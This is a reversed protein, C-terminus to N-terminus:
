CREDSLVVRARPRFHEELLLQRCRYRQVKGSPTKPLAGSEVFVCEHLTIGAKRAAVRAARAALGDYDDVGLKTEALLVLRSRGRLEVDLVVVCGKRLPEMGAVTWEVERAYVNRGTVSILDDDRGVVYLDGDRQFGLDGTRLWGDVFHSRTRVPDAFYGSALSPSSVQIGAVRKRDGARIRVGECPPGASVLFAARPDGTETEVVDGGALRLADVALTKPEARPPCATVALTAEALGYAPIFTNPRLGYPEFVEIARRLTDHEVREAGVVCGRLALEGPLKRRGQARVALHLATSTGATLTSGFSAMEAFWTGPALMFREPTSLTLDWDSAWPRLLCGFIGMDHSLPLWSYVREVGPRGATLSGIIELQETIARTTLVCGKPVDTSGSSYQIFAPEDLGPPAPDIRRSGYLSEWSRVPVRQSLAPPIFPLLREETLILPSGLMALIADLRLAYEEASGGVSPLPLSAPVGGALWTALLGSVAHPSNTLLVAVRTGDHVGSARLSGTMEEARRVVGHWSIREYGREARTYLAGRSRRSTLSDWLDM